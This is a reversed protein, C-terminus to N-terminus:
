ASRKLRGAMIFGLVGLFAAGPAPVVVQVCDVYFDTPHKLFMSGNWLGAQIVARRIGVTSQVGIFGEVAAALGNGSELVNSRWVRGDVDEVVMRFSDYSRINEDFVWLGFASVPNSFDFALTSTSDGANTDGNHLASRYVSGPHSFEDSVVVQGDTGRNTSLQISLNGATLRDLYQLHGFNDLNMEVRGAGVSQQWRQNGLANGGRALFFRTSVPIASKTSASASSEGNVFTPDASTTVVLGLIMLM